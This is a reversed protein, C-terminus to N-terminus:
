PDSTHFSLSRNSSKKNIEPVQYTVSGGEIIERERERERNIRRHTNDYIVARIKDGV